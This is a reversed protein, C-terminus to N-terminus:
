KALDFCAYKPGDHIVGKNDTHFKQAIMEPKGSHPFYLALTDAEVQSEQGKQRTTFTIVTAKGDKTEAERGKVYTLGPTLVKESMVSTMLYGNESTLILASGDYKAGDEVCAATATASAKAGFSLGMILGALLSISIVHYRKMIMYEDIASSTLM